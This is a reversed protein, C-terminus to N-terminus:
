LLITNFHIILYFHDTVRSPLVIMQQISLFEVFCLLGFAKTSHVMGQFVHTERTLLAHCSANDSGLIFFTTFVFLADVSARLTNVTIAM